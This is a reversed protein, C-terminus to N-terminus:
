STPFIIMDPNEYKNGVIIIPAKIYFLFPNFEINDNLIANFLGKDEEWGILFLKKSENTYSIRTIDGVFIKEGNKDFKGTFYSVEYLKDIDEKKIICEFFSRPMIPNPTLFVLDGNKNISLKERTDWSKAIKDWLRFEFPKM